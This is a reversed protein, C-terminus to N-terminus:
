ADASGEETGIKPDWVSWLGCGKCQRQTYTMSMREAWEDWQLYGDPSSTHPECEEPNLPEPKGNVHKIRLPIENGAVHIEAVPRRWRM